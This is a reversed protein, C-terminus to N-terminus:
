SVCDVEVHTIEKHTGSLGASLGPSTSVLGPSPSGGTLGSSEEEDDSCAVFEQIVVRPMSKRKQLKILEHDPEQEVTETKLEEDEFEMEKDKAEM